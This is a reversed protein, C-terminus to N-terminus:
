GTGSNDTKDSEALKRLEESTLGAPVSGTLTGDGDDLHAKNTPAGGATHTGDGTTPAPGKDQGAGDKSESM